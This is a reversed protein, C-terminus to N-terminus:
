LAWAKGVDSFPICGIFEGPIPDFALVEKACVESSFFVQKTVGSLMNFINQDGGLAEISLLTKERQDTSLKNFSKGFDTKAQEEIQTLGTTMGVLEEKTMMDEMVSDFYTHVGAAMAGPTDTAPIITECINGLLELQSGSLYSGDALTVGSECGSILASITGVSLGCGALFGTRKLAERRQM